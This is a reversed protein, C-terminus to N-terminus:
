FGNPNFGFNTNFDTNFGMSNELNPDKYGAQYSKSRLKLIDAKSDIYQPCVLTCNGCLTCDWVGNNQIADIKTKSIQEKKDDVYRLVRTLVYPGLFSPNVEYVPCSSFCSQCLICNSQTDIRKEDEMSISTAQFNELFAHAQKLFTEQHNLDIVLDRIVSANKLPEITDNEQLQTKCALKEVGNVLVACSGCVGSGCGSRFTLSNDKQTKIEHLADLLRPNTVEFDTYVTQSNANGNHRLITIKM